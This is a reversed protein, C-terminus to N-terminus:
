EVDEGYSIHGGVATDWKGPQVLKNMPRKQLYIEGNNNLVHLHVVPHLLSKDSHCVSRPAKGIIEGKSNLLPLWEEQALKRRMIYSRAFEFLIFRDFRRDKVWYWILGGIGVGIAVFLGIRIGWIKYALIFAFLPIFVPLLQLLIKRGSM